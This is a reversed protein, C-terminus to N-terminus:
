PVILPAELIRVELCQGPKSCISVLGASELNKLARRATDRHMGFRLAKKPRFRVTQDGVIGAEHWLVLGVHLCQGPLTGAQYLWEMPVPGKLFPKSQRQKVKFKGKPQDAIKTTNQFDEIRM